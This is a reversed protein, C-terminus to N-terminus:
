HGQLVISKDTLFGVMTKIQKSVVDAKDVRALNGLTCVAEWCIMKEKSKLNAVFLDVHPYLLEPKDESLLSTLERLRERHSSRGRELRQDVAECLDQTEELRARRVPGESPHRGGM